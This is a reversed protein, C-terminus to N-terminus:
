YSATPNTVIQSCRNYLLGNYQNVGLIAIIIFGFILFLGVNAMDPLVVVLANILKRLEKFNM